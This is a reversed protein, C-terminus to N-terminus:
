DAEPPLCFDLAHQGFQIGTIIDKINFGASEGNM